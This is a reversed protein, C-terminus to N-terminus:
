PTRRRTTKHLPFTAVDTKRAAENCRARGCDKRKGGFNSDSASNTAQSVGRSASRAQIMFPATEDARMLMAPTIRLGIM